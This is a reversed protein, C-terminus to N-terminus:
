HVHGHDMEESTAQRLDAIEVHFFLTEGALPHNFDLMVSDPRLGAVFAEVPEGSGKDLLRLGMGEKLELNDPFIERSVVQFADEDFEGYAEAPEIVVDKQEGVTMGYLAQELGRIIQGRGQLFELPEEGASTDIVEGDDLRLTYDLSVVMDDSVTLPKNAM